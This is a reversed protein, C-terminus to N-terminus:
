CRAAVEKVKSVIDQPTIIEGNIKNIGIPKTGSALVREVELCVQGMNMEPVLVAKKGSCLRSVLKDPFPWITQLQLLGAKLDEQRLM